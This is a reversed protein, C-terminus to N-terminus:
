ISDYLKSYEISIKNLDFRQSNKFGKTIINNVYEKDSLVKVIAKKIELIDYPDVLIAADSAVELMSGMNSTIVPRGVINAELIPLGFGEYTSLFSVLNSKQYYKYVEEISLPKDVELFNIRNEVLTEKDPTKLKGIIILETNLGCLSYALTKINKNFNTGIQLVVPTKNVPLESFKFVESATVGIVKAQPIKINLLRETDFKSFKSIFTIHNTTRIPFLFWFYKYILRKLNNKEYLSVCDLITLITKKRNLFIAIYHIDGIIHNIDAQKFFCYFCNLLRPMIGRSYFPMEIIKIDFNPDLKKKLAKYFNEVSFNGLLYPKRVFFNVQRKM